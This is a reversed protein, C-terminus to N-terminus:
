PKPSIGWRDFPHTIAVRSQEDHGLFQVLALAANNGASYKRAWSEARDRRLQFGTLATSLRDRAAVAQALERELEVIRADKASEEEQLIARAARTLMKMATDM